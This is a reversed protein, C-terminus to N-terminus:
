ISLTQSDTPLNKVKYDNFWDATSLGHSLASRDSWVFSPTQAGAAGAVIAYTNGVANAGATAISTAISNGATMTGGITGKLSYTESTTIQQENEAVFSLTGSTVNTDYLTASSGVDGTTTAFTGAITNGSSDVLQMSSTAGTTGITVGATKAITWVLKKWNVQGAADASIQVKSITKTGASLVTSPLSVNTITPISKYIYQANTTVDTNTEARTGTSSNTIFGELTVTVNASSTAANNGVDNLNLYVDVIKGTTDNAPVSITMGTSTAILGNLSIIKDTMGASKLTIDRIAGAANNSGVKVALDTITFTDNLATFRFSAVKPSTNGVLLKTALTSDNVFAASISGSSVTITQGTLAGVSKATASNATTGSVTLKAVATDSSLMSANLTAFVDIIMTTNPALTESINFVNGSATAIVTNKISSTKTGYKVYLDSMDVAEDTTSSTSLDVTLTDINLAETDTTVISFSGIKYATQPTVVTQNAYTANKSGSLGGVAVTLTNATVATNSFNTLASTRKVNLSGAVIRAAVTDGASVQNTGDDDYLDARVELTVPTGPTVILSSGLNFQTYGLTLDSTANISATSGVQVGDAFLAGNRLAYVTESAGEVVAVRLNEIKLPEGAAKLEFKGLVIGSGNLITNGSPSDTKKTITLTGANITETGATLATFSSGAVTALIPVNLQSDVLVIDGGNQLSFSFTKTSGGVINGVLKLTHTGTELKVPAAGLDFVVYGNSNLSAVEPGVVTGDISLRFKALDNALVSGIQRFMISKLWVSRTTVSLVSSQWMVYDDQPDVNATSPILTTTTFDIGAMSATAITHTNGLIPFTGNVTVGSVVSALALGVIQGSTGALIDAKVSVTVSGGAPITFLGSADNFTVKSQSVSASDSLRTVGNYLYVNALTTDNSVGTRNLVLNTVKVESATTNTFTFHALDAVAQGAILTGSVPTDSALTVNVTTGTTIGGGTIVGTACSAGTIPSFGATSTCGEPLGSTGTGGTTGSGVSLTNLLARTSAGVFGTGSTLGVPTLIEAAHLEQFKIVAAKTKAGFYSSEMGPSGAGTAAVQTASNMNLVKQLNMVDSSTMGMKLNTAFTYSTGGTTTGGTGQMTSLQSQLSTITALLSAIQAQLEETTAASATGFSMTVATAFGVFGAIVKSARSKRIKNM